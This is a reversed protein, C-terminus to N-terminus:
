QKGNNYMYIQSTRTALEGTNQYIPENIIQNNNKGPPKEDSSVEGNGCVPQSDDSVGDPVSSNRTVEPSFGKNSYQYPIQQPTAQIETVTPNQITLAYEMDVQQTSGANSQSDTPGDRVLFIVPEDPESYISSNHRRKNRKVPDVTYKNSSITRKRGDVAEKIQRKDELSINADKNRILEDVERRIRRVM